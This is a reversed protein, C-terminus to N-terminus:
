TYTPETTGTACYIVRGTAREYISVEGRARGLSLAAERGYVVNSADMYATGDEVWVGLADASESSSELAKILNCIGHFAVRGDFEEVPVTVEQVAGGVMYGDPRLHNEVSLHATAGTGDQVARVFGRATNHISDVDLLEAHVFEM